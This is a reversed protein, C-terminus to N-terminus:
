KSPTRSKAIRGPVLFIEGAELNLTYMGNIIPGRRLQSTLDDLLEPLGNAPSVGPIRRFIEAEVISEFRESDGLRVRKVRHDAYSMALMGFYSDLTEAVLEM